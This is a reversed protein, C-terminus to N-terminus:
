GAAACGTSVAAATAGDAAAAGGASAVEARRDTATAASAGAAATAAAGALAASGPGAAATTATAATNAATAAASCYATSERAGGDEAATTAGGDEAARDADACIATRQDAGPQGPRQQQQPLPQGARQQPGFGRQPQQAAPVQGPRGQVQGPLAGPQRAGPAAGSTFRMPRNNVPPAAVRDATLVRGATAMAPRGQNQQFFQGRTTAAARQNEMQATMPPTRQSRFAAMEAPVPRAQIGGRGGNYSVRNNIVTNNVYRNTVSNNIRVNNVIVTRNYVNHINTINVNSVARNYAFHNGNWYGGEYGTGYYGFGYPVGGYFGIHRGWYGHHFGYGRGYPGWWGPTWLAGTYPAACWAGPVWYYGAPAYGWYGPTWLYDDAPAPPQDYVPLPPPPEQAQQNPDVDQYIQDSLNQADDPGYAQGNDYGGNDQAYSGGSQPYGGQPQQREVPAPAQQGNAYGQAAQQSDNVTGQPATQYRPAARYGSSGGTQPYPAATQYGAPTPSLGAGTAAAEADSADVPAMNAEAPDPGTDNVTTMQPQDSKCGIVGTGLAVLLLGAAGAATLGRLVVQKERSRM